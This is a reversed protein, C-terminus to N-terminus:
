EGRETSRLCLRIFSFMRMFFYDVQENSTLREQNTESHRIHFNNGMSTLTKAEDELLPRLAIHGKAVKDLLKKVKGKKDQGEELTKLREFADWLNELSLQRNDLDPSIFFDRAQKLLDDTIQDGTFFHANNLENQIDEPLVRVACGKGDLKYAIGNRSFILNVDQIFKQLGPEREWRLHYHNHYSHYSGQIVEGVSSACFELVDLIDPTKPVVNSCPTWECNPVEVALLNLFKTADCGCPGQGDYCQEPFRYGFSGNDICIEILTSLGSWVRDDIETGNRVITGNERDAFYKDM